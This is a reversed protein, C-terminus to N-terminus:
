RSISRTKPFRKETEADLVTDLKMFADFDDLYLQNESLDDIIYSFNWSMFHVLNYLQTVIVIYVGLSLSGNRMAPILYRQAIHDASCRRGHRCPNQSPKAQISKTGERNRKPIQGEMKTSFACYGFAERENAYERDSLIQRYNRARRFEQNSEAYAAYNDEGIKRYLPALCIFVALLVLGTGINKTLVILFMSGIRVLLGALELIKSFDRQLNRESAM